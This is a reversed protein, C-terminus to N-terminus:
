APAEDGLWASSRTRTMRRPALSVIRSRVDALYQIAGVLELDFLPKAIVGAVGPIAEDDLRSPDATMYLVTVGGAALSRGLEMGTAGDALSLDVLAIDAQDLYAMAKIGSPVIALLEHGLALIAEEYHMALLFEDEVVLFKFAMFQNGESTSSVRLGFENKESNVLGVGPQVQAPKEDM